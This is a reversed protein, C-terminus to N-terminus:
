SKKPSRFGGLEQLVLAGGDRPDPGFVIRVPRGTDEPDNESFLVDPFISEKSTPSSLDKNEWDGHYYMMLLAEENSLEIFKLLKRSQEPSLAKGITEESEATYALEIYTAGGKPAADIWMIKKDEVQTKKSLFDTPFAIWAVRSAENSGVKPTPKRRWRFIARDSMKAPAGHEKTFASRCIGSKHFSYKNTGAQSRWALYVDGQRTVWLRWVSSVFGDNRQIGFRTDFLNKSM